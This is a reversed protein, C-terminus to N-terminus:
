ACGGLRITFTSGQGLASELEVHGGHATAIGRVIALGLGTGRGSSGREHRDFIREHDAPDIGQGNDRVWLRLEGDQVASGLAVVTGPQSYQVANAALQLWAQSIRQPDLWARVEAVADLQWERDGLSAAKALTEDTLQLLDTPVLHLLYPQRTRALTLLDDVLRQMRDLESVVIDCAERTAAPDTFDMVELHGRAITLPTRLEHGVDDLLQRQGNAATELRDLMSNVTQALGSVDDNGTVPIRKSIDSDNIEQATRRVAAIPSLLRGVLLWILLGIVVLSAAAVLAYAKYIPSHLASEATIDTARVLAAPADQGDLHVPIVVYFWDRSATTLQGYTVTDLAALPILAAVLADDNEPRLTIGPQATWTVEGADVALAGEYPSLAAQQMAVRLLADATAWPEGTAPDPETALQRLAAVALQQETRIRRETAARGWAVVVIGSIVLAFATLVLVATIVRTRVTLVPLRIPTRRVPAAHSGHSVPLTSGQSVPLPGKLSPTRKDGSTTGHTAPPNDREPSQGAVTESVRKSM